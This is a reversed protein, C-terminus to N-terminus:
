WVLNLSRERALEGKAGGMLGHCQVLKWVGAERHFVATFPLALRSGNPMALTPRDAVWGVSGESFGEPAGPTLPLRGGMARLQEKWEKVVRSGSWWSTAAAGVGRVTDANSFHRDL